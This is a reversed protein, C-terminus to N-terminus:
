PKSNHDARKEGTSIAATSGITVSGVPATLTMARSITMTENYVGSVISVVGSTPVEAVSQSVTQYPRFVTGGKLDASVPHGLDTFRVATGTFASIANELSDNEFSTGSNSGGSSTCGGNTHIGLTLTTGDAIIPGGSNGGQSNARYLFYSENVEGLNAGAHTQQTQSDANYPPPAGFNPAPGDVGYGTIRITPPSFDRSMRFFAAQAQAPLLNTNSNPACGFVAWDNGIGGDVFQVASQNILYQHQPPPHNITGDPDSAPVNFQLTQLNSGVCHGATLYAGSSVIWGTCGVPVIRGVRPDSSAVREDTAGCITQPSQSSQASGSVFDGVTLETLSVFIEREGAAVYLSISVADGNFFASSSQWLRMSSSDLRQSHGDKLSTIIVSSREGLQYDGFRLQLWAANAIRVTQSFAQKDAAALGGGGRHTGSELRYPSKHYPIRAPQAFVLGSLLLLLLCIIGHAPTSLKM